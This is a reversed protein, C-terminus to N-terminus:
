EILRVRSQFRSLRDILLKSLAAMAVLSLMSLHSNWHKEMYIGALKMLPLAIYSLAFSFAGLALLYKRWPSFYQYVLTLGMPIFFLNAPLMTPIIPELQMRYDYWDQATALDDLNKNLLYIAGYYATMRLAQKKDILLLLAGLSFVCTLALMWWQWTFLTHQYWFDWRLETLQNSLKDIKKGMAEM